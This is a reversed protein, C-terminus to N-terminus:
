RTESVLKWGPSSKQAIQCKKSRSGSPALSQCGWYSSWHDRLNHHLVMFDNGMFFPQGCPPLQKGLFLFEGPQAVPEALPAPVQRPLPDGFLINEFCGAAPLGHRLQKVAPVLERDIVEHEAGAPVFPALAAGVPGVIGIADVRVQPLAIDTKQRDRARWQWLDLSELLAHSPGEFPDRREAVAEVVVVIHGEPGFLRRGSL